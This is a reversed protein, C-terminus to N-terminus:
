SRAAHRGEALEREVRAIVTAGDGIGRRAVVDDVLGPSTALALFREWARRADKRRGVAALADGYVLQLGVEGLTDAEYALLPFAREAALIADEPRGAGFHATAIEAMARAEVHGSGPHPTALTVCEGLPRLADDYRGAWCLALAQAHLAAVLLGTDGTERLLTVADDVLSIREEPDLDLTMARSSLVSAQGSRDDLSTYEQEALDYYTRAHDQDGHRAYKAAVARHCEARLVVDDVHEVSEAAARALPLTDATSDVSDNIPRCDLYLLVASRHDGRSVAAAFAARLGAREAVYWRLAQARDPFLEPVVTPDVEGLPAVPPRGFNLVAERASRVYHEVYRAVVRDREDGLLETALERLLDHLVYRGPASQRLLSASTLETLHKHTEHALLGALSVASATSIQPGPVVSLRAFLRAAGDSLGEYSWTLVSRLDPGADPDSLADLARSQGVERAFLDLPFGPNAAARAAVLAVALPLGGCHRGIALLPQTGGTLHAAGLRRDFFDLIEDDDFPELRVLPVQRRVALGRLQNRSTVLATAPGDGPLLPEVQASDHANDLVLLARRGALLSRLLASRADASDPLAQPAVGLAELLDRLAEAPDLPPAVADFGRLDVYLLGDPYDATHLGGWKLALSTKGVGAMGAVVVVQAGEGAPDAGLAGEGLAADIAALAEHRGAFAAPPSPLQRPIVPASPPQTATRSPAAPSADTDGDAGTEAGTDGDGDGRLAEAHAARLDRGPSAGLEDLLTTRVAAYTALAEAPRGARTLVRVLGAHAAEDLPDRTAALRLPPLLAAVQEPRRVLRAAATLVRRREDELGVFVPLHRLPEDGAPGQAIALAELYRDVGGDAAGSAAEQEARHVLERFALVDSTGPTLALRYGGGTPLLWSGVDRRPLDPEFLRRLEGVHRRVQNVVSPASPDSWAADILEGLPVQQDPTALLLGLIVRQKPQVLEVEVGDRWVRVGGYLAFRVGRDTADPPMPVVPM